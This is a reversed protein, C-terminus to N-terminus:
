PIAGRPVPIEDARRTMIEELEAKREVPTSAARSEEYLEHLASKAAYSEPTHFQVEFPQGTETRWQTNIGRYPGAEPSGPKAWSNAAKELTFGRGELEARSLEYASMYREKDSEMTYRLADHVEDAELRVAEDLPLGHRAGARQEIKRALSAESKLRNELGVLRAQGRQAIEGLAKTVAPEEKAASTLLRRAQSRAATALLGQGAKGASAAGGSALTLLLTPVLHGLARAPNEVWTDWDSVAKAFEVPHTVGYVVGQGLGVLN